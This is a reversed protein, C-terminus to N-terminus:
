WDYHDNEHHLADVDWMPDYSNEQYSSLGKLEGFIDEVKDDISQAIRYIDDLTKAEKSENEHDATMTFPCRM